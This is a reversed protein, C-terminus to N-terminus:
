ADGVMPMIYTIQLMTENMEDEAGAVAKILDGAADGAKEIGERRLVDRWLRWRRLERRASGPVL